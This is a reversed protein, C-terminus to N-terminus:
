QLLRLLLALVGTLAVGLAVTMATSNLVRLLRESM